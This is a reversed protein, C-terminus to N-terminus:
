TPAHCAPQWSRQSRRPDTCRRIPQQTTSTSISNTSRLSGSRRARPPHPRAAPRPRATEGVSRQGCTHRVTDPGPTIWPENVEAHGGQTREADSGCGDASGASAPSALACTLRTRAPHGEEALRAREGAFSSPSGGRCRWLAAAASLTGWGITIIPPEAGDSWTAGPRRPERDRHHGAALDPLAGGLLEVLHGGAPGVALTHTPTPM